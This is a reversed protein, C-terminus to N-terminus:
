ETDKTGDSNINAGTKLFRGESLPIYAMYVESTLV